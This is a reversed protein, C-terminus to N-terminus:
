PEMLPANDQLTGDGDAGARKEHDLVGRESGDIGSGGTLWIIGSSSRCARNEDVTSYRITGYLPRVQSVHVLHHRIKPEPTALDM